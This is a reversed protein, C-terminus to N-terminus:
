VRVVEIEAFDADVGGLPKVEVRSKYFPLGSRSRNPRTRVLSRDSLKTWKGVGIVAVRALNACDMLWLINHASM